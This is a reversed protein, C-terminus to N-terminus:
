HAVFMSTNYVGSDQLNGEGEVYQIDDHPLNLENLVTL